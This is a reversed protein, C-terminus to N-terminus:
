EQSDEFLNCIENFTPREEPNPNWCLTMIKRLLNPCKDNNDITPTMHQVGIMQVVELNDFNEFPEHRNVIESLVVGYGWVDSKESYIRKFAEPAMWKIPGINSKTKGENHRVMRSLGFDSIKAHLDKSLLINRSALDRHVINAMHIHLLGQAIEYALRIQEKAPIEHASNFLLNDLSGGECFELVLAIDAGDVSVGLIQVVNPHPRLNIM